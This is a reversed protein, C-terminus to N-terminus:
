SAEQASPASLSTPALFSWTGSELQAVDYGELAGLAAMVYDALPQATQPPAGVLVNRAIAEALTNGGEEIAKDYAGMRGYFSEAYKHMRRPVTIDGVGMERLNADMDSCFRDFLGQATASGRIRRLVLWLHLIVMDFRGNVTDPVGYDSYFVPLRAQAVIMGYIAEITSQSPGSRSRPRNFPWLM